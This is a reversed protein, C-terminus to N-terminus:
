ELCIMSIRKQAAYGTIRKGNIFTGNASELDEVTLYGNEMRLRCHLRSVQSSPIRVTCGVARGLTTVPGNIQAAWVRKKRKELILRARM